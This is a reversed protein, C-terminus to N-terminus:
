IKWVGASRAPLDVHVCGDVLSAQGEGWLPETRTGPLRTTFGAAEDGANVAVLLCDSGHERAFAYFGGYAHFHRYGGHRLAPERHRLAMLSRFTELLEHDWEDERGWPFGERCGPDHGGAMGIEDGYYVCPAGPFTFLLTAALKVASRHGGVLSLLRPTDHSGLLNLNARTTAKSYAALLYAIAAEYGHADHPDFDLPIRSAHDGDIRGAAVFRLIASLLAYNMVGDFRGRDSTWQPDTVWIEGVLYAEPNVAKVRVRFEEWFGQTKINAPVDLRWGDAGREIWHEAVRMIFERVELNETNFEPLAHLGWWAAYDPPRSLDYANPPYRFVTFWDRWASAAGNELIDNFQLFGRSAHNFVGDIIVRLGRDHAAAVLVDFAENGGLLPDVRYYDHTHYRHNSASQFIPNLYIANVGLDTLWDLHEVIGLLDGGKYGHRTAPSDWSELNGPKPVGQSCAFRDPFIQYFIADAVWDPPSQSSTSGASANM